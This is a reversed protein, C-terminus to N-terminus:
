GNMLVTRDLGGLSNKACFAINLLPLRKMGEVRGSCKNSCFIAKSEGECLRLAKLVSYSKDESIPRPVAEVMRGFQGVSMSTAYGAHVAVAAAATAVVEGTRDDGDKTTGM